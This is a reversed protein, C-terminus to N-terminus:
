ATVVEPTNWFRMGMPVRQVRRAFLPNAGWELPPREIQSAARENEYVSPFVFTAYRATGAPFCGNLATVKPRAGATVINGLM